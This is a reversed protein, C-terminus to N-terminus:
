GASSIRSHGAARGRPVKKQGTLSAGLLSECNYREWSDPAIKLYSTLAARLLSEADGYEGSNVYLLGLSNM